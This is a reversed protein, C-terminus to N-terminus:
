NAPQGCLASTTANEHHHGKTVQPKSNPTHFGLDKACRLTRNGPSLPTVSKTVAFTSCFCGTLDIAATPQIVFFIYSQYCVIYIVSSSYAMKM